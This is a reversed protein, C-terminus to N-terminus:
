NLRNQDDNKREFEGEFTKGADQKTPNFGANESSQQFHFGAGQQFSSLNLHAILKSAVWARPWPLLIIMGLFDTLFGPTLLLVGSVILLVAEIIQQAPLQGNQLREQVSLLTKLGERRVLSAGVLATLLVIGVTSWVGLVGGVQIFLAIEIVPVTIFLILLVLFM